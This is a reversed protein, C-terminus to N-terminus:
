AEVKLPEASLGLSKVHNRADNELSFCQGDATVWVSTLGHRKCAAKGVARLMSAGNSNVANGKHKQKGKEAKKATTTTEEAATAVNEAVPETVNKTENDM